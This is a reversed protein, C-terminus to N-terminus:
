LKAGKKSNCSQCLPQINEINDSGGRSVPIIHDETLKVFPESRGCYNCTWNYQAKATEWEAFSHRGGNVRKMRNRKNKTWSRYKPDNKWRGGKWNGAKEDKRNRAKEKYEESLKKGKKSISIKDKTEQTHKGKFGKVWPKPKGTWFKSLKNKAESSCPKHKYVGSKGKVGSM